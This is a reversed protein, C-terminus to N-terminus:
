AHVSEKPLPADPSDVWALDPGQLPDFALPIGCVLLMSAFVPGRESDMAAQTVGGTVDDRAINLAAVAARCEAVAHWPDAFRRVHRHFGFGDSYDKRVESILGVWAAGVILRVSRQECLDEAQSDTQPQVLLDCDGVASKEQARREHDIVQPPYRKRTTDM